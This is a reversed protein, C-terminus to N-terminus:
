ESLGLVTNVIHQCNPLSNVIRILDKDNVRAYREQVTSAFALDKGHGLLIKRYIEDIGARLLETQFSARLDHMRFDIGSDQKALRIATNIRTIPQKRYLIIRGSTERKGFAPWLGKRIPVRGVKKSSAAQAQTPYIVGDKTIQSWDLSLIASHRLGTFRAILFARKVHDMRGDCITVLNDDTIESQIVNMEPLRKVFLCPNHPPYIRGSRIAYTFIASLLSVERNVTAPRVAKKIRIKGNARQKQYRVVKDMDIAKAPMSGFYDLLLSSRMEDDRWSKKTQRSHKLYDGVLRKFNQDKEQRGLYVKRYLEDRMQREIMQASAKATYVVHRDRHTFGDRTVSVDIQYGRQGSRGNYRRIPM